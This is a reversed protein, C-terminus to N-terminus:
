KRGARLVSAEDETMWGMKIFQKANQLRCSNYEEEWKKLELILGDEYESDSVIMGDLVSIEVVPKLFVSNDMGTCNRHLTFDYDYAYGPSGKPIGTANILVSKPVFAPASFQVRYKHHSNLAVQFEGDETTFFTLSDRNDVYVTVQGKKIPRGADDLLFGLLTIAEDYYQPVHSKVPTFDSIETYFNKNTPLGKRALDMQASFKRTYERDFAIEGISSYYKAIGVPIDFLSYDVGEEKKFLNIEIDFGFGGAQDQKPISDTEIILYKSVYGPANFSIKFQNGFDLDVEFKGTTSFPLDISTGNSGSVRVFGNSIKQQTNDDKVYGYVYIVDKTDQSSGALGAFVLILLLLASRM